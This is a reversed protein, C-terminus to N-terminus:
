LWVKSLKPHEKLSHYYKRRNRNKESNRRLPQLGNIFRSLALISLKCWTVSTEPRTSCVSSFGYYLGFKLCLIPIQIFILNEYM